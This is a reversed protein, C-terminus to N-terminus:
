ESNHWLSFPVFLLVGLILLTSIIISFLIIPNSILSPFLSIADLRSLHLYVVLGGIFLGIPSFVALIKLCREIWEWISPLEKSPMSKVHIDLEQEQKIKNLLKIELNREIEDQIKKLKTSCNWM